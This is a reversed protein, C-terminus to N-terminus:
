GRWAASHWARRRNELRADRHRALVLVSKGYAPNDSLRRYPFAPAHHSLAAWPLNAYSKSCIM